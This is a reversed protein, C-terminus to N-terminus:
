QRRGLRRAAVIAYIAANIVVVAVGLMVHITTAVGSPYVVPVLYHEVFSESYGLGAAALRLDNELPTLPCILQKFESLAGWVVAPIHLWAVWFRWLVLLGGLVVFVIFGFHFLVLTDAAFGYWMEFPGRAWM